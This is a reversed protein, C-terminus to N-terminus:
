SISRMAPEASDRPDKLQCPLSVNEPDGGRRQDGDDTEAKDLLRPPPEDQEENSGADRDEDCKQNIKERYTHKERVRSISGIHDNLSQCHCCNVYHPPNNGRHGIISSTQISELLCDIPRELNACCDRLPLPV